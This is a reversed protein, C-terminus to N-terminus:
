KGKAPDFDIKLPKAPMQRVQDWINKQVDNAPPPAWGEECAKRYTTVKMPEMGLRRMHEQIAGMWMPVPKNPLKLADLLEPSEAPSMITDAFPTDAGGCLLAFARYVAKRLRAGLIAAPADGLKGANVIAWGSDYAVLSAPIDGNQVVFIVANAGLAKKQADATALTAPEGKVAEIRLGHFISMENVFDAVAKQEVLTQANVVVIRGKGSKVNAVRGGTHEYIRQAFSKERLKQRVREAANTSYKGGETPNSSAAFAIASAALVIATVVKRM